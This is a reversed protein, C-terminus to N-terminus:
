KLLFVMAENAGYLTGLIFVVALIIQLFLLTNSSSRKPRAAAGSRSVSSAVPSSPAGSQVMAKQQREKEAAERARVARLIEARKRM